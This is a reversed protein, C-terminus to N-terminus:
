PVFVSPADEARRESRQEQQRPEVDAPGHQACRGSLMPAASMASTALSLARPRTWHVSTEPHAIAASQATASTCQFFGGHSGSTIVAPIYWYAPSM